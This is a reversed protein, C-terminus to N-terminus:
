EAAVVPLRRGDLSARVLRMRWDVGVLEGPGMELWVNEGDLPESSFVLHKVFGTQTPAECEPSISACDDRDACHSKYTSWYLEKGSQAAVMTTGDTVIITLLSRSAETDGDCLDRVQAITARLAQVGEDVSLRENLPGHAALHTLFLFFIAESDTDGLIYRRLRPAVAALVKDRHQEFNRIEGNHAMTWRGHQFPHCNLVNVEGVTAKRVHALVTESAVVGSLRHFLQDGLARSPSRTIHPSDNVYFAVGWGDPHNDSQVGLANDAAM